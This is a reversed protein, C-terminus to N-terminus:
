WSVQTHPVDPLELKKGSEAVFDPPQRTLGLGSLPGSMRYTAGPILRRLTWRGDPEESWQVHYAASGLDAAPAKGANMVFLPNPAQGGPTVILELHAAAPQRVPKGGADVFRVTATGCPRLTV